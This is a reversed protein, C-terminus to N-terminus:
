QWIYSAQAWEILKRMDAFHDDSGLVVAILKWGSAPAVLALALNKKARPTEGTKGGIIKMPFSSDLLLANTTTASYCSSSGFTCVQSEVLGLDRAIDPFHLVIDKLLFAIDEATSTNFLVGDLGSPSVFKTHTLGLSSANENMTSVFIEKGVDGAFAEAADNNSEVLMARLLDDRRYEMGPRFRGSGGKGSFITPPISIIHNELVTNKVVRATMLKTVSAIPVSTNVNKGAILRHQGEPSVLFLAFARPHIDPKKVGDKRQPSTDKAIYFNYGILSLGTSPSFFFLSAVLLLVFVVIITPPSLRM